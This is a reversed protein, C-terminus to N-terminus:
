EEEAKKHEERKEWFAEFRGMWDGTASTLGRTDETEYGYSVRAKPYYVRVFEASDIMTRFMNVALALIGGLLTGFEPERLFRYRAHHVLETLTLLSYNKAPTERGYIIRITYLHEAHHKVGCASSKTSM